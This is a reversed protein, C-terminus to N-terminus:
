GSLLPLTSIEILVALFRSFFDSAALDPMGQRILISFYERPLDQLSELVFSTQVDCEFM